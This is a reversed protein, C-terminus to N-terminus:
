GIATPWGADTVEHIPDLLLINQVDSYKQLTPSAYPCEHADLQLTTEKPDSLEILSEQLLKNTFEELDKLTETFDRKHYQSLETAIHTISAQQEIFQWVQKAVNVLTYYDGTNFDIVIVETDMVEYIIKSKCISYANM